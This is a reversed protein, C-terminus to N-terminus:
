NKFHGNQYCKRVLFPRQCYAHIADFVVPKGIYM